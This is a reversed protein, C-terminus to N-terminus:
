LQLKAWNEADFEDRKRTINTFLCYFTPTQTVHELVLHKIALSRVDHPHEELLVRLTEAILTEM